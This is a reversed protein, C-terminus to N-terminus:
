DDESEILAGTIISTINEGYNELFKALSNYSQFYPNTEKLTAQVSFSVLDSSPTEVEPLVIKTKRKINMASAPNASLVNFVMETSYEKTKLKKSGDKQKEKYVLTGAFTVSYVLMDKNKKIYAKTYDSNFDIIDFELFQNNDNKIAFNLEQFSEGTSGSPKVYFNILKMKVVGDATQIFSDHYSDSISTAQSLEKRKEAKTRILGITSNIAPAAISALVSGAGIAKAGNAFNAETGIQLFTGKVKQNGTSGSNYIKKQANVSFSTFLIFLIIFNKM